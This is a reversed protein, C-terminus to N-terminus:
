ISSNEVRKDGSSEVGREGLSSRDEGRLLPTRTALDFLLLRCRDAFFVKSRAILVLCVM